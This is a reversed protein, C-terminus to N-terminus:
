SEGSKQVALAKQNELFSKSVEIPEAKEPSHYYKKAISGIVQIQKENAFMM